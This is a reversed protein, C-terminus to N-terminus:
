FTAYNMHFDVFSMSIRHHFQRMSQIDHGDHARALHAAGQVLAAGLHVAGFHLDSTAM